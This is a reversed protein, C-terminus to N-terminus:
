PFNVRVEMSCEVDGNSYRAGGQVQVTLGTRSTFVAVLDHVQRELETKMEMAKVVSLDLIPMTVDGSANNTHRSWSGFADMVSSDGDSSPGTM